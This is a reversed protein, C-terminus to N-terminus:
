LAMVNLVGNIWSEHISLFKKDPHMTILNVVGNLEWLICILLTNRVILIGNFYNISTM